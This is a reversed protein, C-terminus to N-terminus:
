PIIFKDMLEFGRNRRFAIHYIFMGKGIQTAFDNVIKAENAKVEGEKKYMLRGSIDYISLVFDHDVESVMSLNINGNGSEYYTWANVRDPDVILNLRGYSTLTGDYDMQILEFYHKGYILNEIQLSYSTPQYKTGQGDIFYSEGQNDRSDLHKLLFGKNDIELDTKWSIEAVNKDILNVDFAVLEIPLAMLYATAANIKILGHGTKFDFGNDFGSTSPNDLDETTNILADLLDANNNAGAEKLLAATAAVVPASASTGFFNPKADADAGIDTGFFSTNAGDVGTFTPTERIVTPISHILIIPQQLPL